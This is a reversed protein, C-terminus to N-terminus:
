DSALVSALALWHHVRAPLDAATRKRWGTFFTALWARRAKYAFHRGM